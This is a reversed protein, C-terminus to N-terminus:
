IAYKQGKRGKMIISETYFANAKIMKNGSMTIGEIKITVTVNEENKFLVSLGKLGKL